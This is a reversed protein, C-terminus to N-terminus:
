ALTDGLDDVRHDGHRSSEDGHDDQIRRQGNDGDKGGHHHKQYRRIERFKRSFIKDALLDIEASHVSKNLFHQVPLLNYFYEAVFFSCLSIKMFHVFSQSVAGVLRVSVGVQQHGDVGVDAPDAVRQHSNYARNQADVTQRAHGDTRYDGENTQVFAKCVGNGLDALLDIEDDVGGGSGLPYEVEHILSRFRVVAIHFKDVRHLVLVSVEGFRRHSRIQPGPFMRVLGLSGDGIGSLFAANYKVIHIEAIVFVLDHEM